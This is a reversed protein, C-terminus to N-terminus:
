ALGLFTSLRADIDALQEDSLQGFVQGVKDRQRYTVKDIMTASPRTLGNRSDPVIVCRVTDDADLESTMPIIVVAPSEAFDDSQIVLAPRPKGIEGQLAVTVPDGRRV